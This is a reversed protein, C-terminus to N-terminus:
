SARTGADPPGGTGDDPVISGDGFLGGDDPELTGDAPAPSEASSVPGVTTAEGDQTAGPDAERVLVIAGLFGVVAALALSAKVATLHRRVRALRTPPPTDTM